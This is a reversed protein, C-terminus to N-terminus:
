PGTSSPHSFLAGGLEKKEHQQNEWPLSEGDPSFPEEDDNLDNPNRQLTTATRIVNAANTAHHSVVVRCTAMLGCRGEITQNVGGGRKMQPQQQPPPSAVDQYGEAVMKQM